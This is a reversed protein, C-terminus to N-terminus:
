HYILVKNGSFDYKFPTTVQLAQLVENLNEGKFVGTLHYDKLQEDKFEISIHYVRELDYALEAFPIDNFALEGKMWSLESIHQDLPNPKISHIHYEVLAKIKQTPVPEAVSSDKLYFTVKQHPKLVIPARKHNNFDITIRGTILSAEIYPDAPYAKVNFTTGLVKVKMFSGAQVIFPKQANHTVEFYAEGSLKVERDINGFDAACNLTSGSNLWVKTGDQLTITTPTEAVFANRIPHSAVAVEKHHDTKGLFYYLFASSIILFLTAAAWLGKRLRVIRHQIKPQEEPQLSEDIEALKKNLLNNEEDSFREKVPSTTKIADIVSFAYAIDPNAELFKELESLEEDTAEGATKKAMLNWLGSEDM